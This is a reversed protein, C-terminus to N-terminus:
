AVLETELLSFSAGLEEKAQKILKGVEIVSAVSKQWADEIRHKWEDHQNGNAVLEGKM